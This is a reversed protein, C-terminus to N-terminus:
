RGQGRAAKDHAKVKKLAKKFPDWSIKLKGDEGTKARLHVSLGAKGENGRSEPPIDQNRNKSLNSLPVQLSMDTGIKWDYTGEVFLTFATSSIEMRHIFVTTSDVDLENQLEAFKVASLDRNKLVSMQIKEIPAFDVLQGDHIMFRVNGKFSNPKLRAKPSLKGTMSIDANLTGKLNKAVIAEQGFNNFATFIHPLDVNKLTADLSLPIDEGPAQRDLTAKMDLTGGDQGVALRSLRIAHNDVVLDARAHAGSFKQFRLDGAEIGIHIAGEKLLRDIRSFTAGFLPNGRHGPAATEARGALPQLDALDLFPTSLNWDMSVNEANRDLLAVLNRAIGKVQIRSNGMKLSLPDILLDQDKFLLRGKGDTLRFNYPLYTLAASDLDLHGNVVTGATDNESLPGKYVLDLIGDGGNFQLTQSGTIENLQGLGFHSHLDCTMRPHKLNVIFISDCRLPLGQLRGTFGTIRIISNEDERKMGRVWENSFSAKFSADTFRGAPTLASGNDLDLRVLIQPTPDDAAGADLQAHVTVPKDIDFQDIKQQLNPTLLAAAQHFRINQTEITLFFPDPKVSPFFRGTFVFPQGDIKVTIRNFQVIKSATNYGVIFHGSLVRNQLFSGKATNFAFNNVLINANSAELSLLRDDRKIACNLHRIDLDFLKHKDQREMVWHIDNLALDPLDGPKGGSAPKRPRFLYTNTYGTSDTYFYAQGHRLIVTGLAIHRVLLCKWPNCSLDIEAANLLDHRHLQWASDRWAVNTLRVSISPFNRFFAIDLGGIHLQGQLREGLERKARELLSTKHFQVYAALSVWLLLLLCLITGAIRFTYRLITKM